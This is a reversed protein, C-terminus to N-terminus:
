ARSFPRHHAQGLSDLAQELAMLEIGLAPALDPPPESEGAAVPEGEAEAVPEGEAEPEPEPEPVPEEILWRRRFRALLRALVGGRPTDHAVGEPGENAQEAAPAPQEHPPASDTEVPADEDAVPVADEGAHATLVVKTGWGSPELRVM